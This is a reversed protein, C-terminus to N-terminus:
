SVLGKYTYPRQKPDTYVNVISSQDVYNWNQTALQITEAFELACTVVRPSGSRFFSEYTINCSMMFVPVGDPPKSWGPVPSFTSPSLPSTPVSSTTTGLGVGSTIGSNPMILYMPYPPNAVGSSYTPYLKSRLWAAAGAPDLSSSNGGIATKVAAIATGLPNSSLASAIAGADNIANSAAGLLSSGSPPPYPDIDATFVAEFSIMRANGHMWQYIPHSGGIINKQAWETSYSDSITEPYYQFSRLTDLDVSGDDFAIDVLACSAIRRDEATGLASQLSSVFGM